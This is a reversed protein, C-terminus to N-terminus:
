QRPELTEDATVFDRKNTLQNPKDLIGVHLEIGRGDPFTISIVDSEANRIKEHQVSINAKREFDGADNQLVRKLARTFAVLDESSFDVDDAIPRTLRAVKQDAFFIGGLMPTETGDKKLIFHGGRATLLNKETNAEIPPSLRCCASLLQVAESMSMGVYLQEGGFVFSPRQDAALPLVLAIFLSFALLSLKRRKMEFEM